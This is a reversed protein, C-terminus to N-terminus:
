FYLSNQQHNLFIIFNSEKQCVLPLSITNKPHWQSVDGPDYFFSSKEKSFGQLIVPAPDICNNSQHTGQHAAELASRAGLCPGPAAAGLALSPTHSTGVQHQACWFHQLTGLSGRLASVCFILSSWEEFFEDAGRLDKCPKWSWCLASWGEATEQIFTPYNSSWCSIELCVDPKFAKRKREKDERNWGPRESRLKFIIDLATREQSLSEM